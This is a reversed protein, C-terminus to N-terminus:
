PSLVTFAQQQPNYVNVGGGQTAVWILGSRDGYIDSVRNDSLSEPDAPDNRAITFGKRAPDLVNLGGENTGM